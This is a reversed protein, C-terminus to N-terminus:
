PYIVNIYLQIVFGRKGDFIPFNYWYNIRFNRRPYISTHHKTLAYLEVFYHQNLRCNFLLYSDICLPIRTTKRYTDLLRDIACKTQANTNLMGKEYVHEHLYSM